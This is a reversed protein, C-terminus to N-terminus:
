TLCAYEEPLEDSSAVFAAPNSFLDIPSADPL